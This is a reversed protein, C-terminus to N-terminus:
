RRRQVGLPKAVLTRDSRVLFHRATRSISAQLPNPDAIPIYGFMDAFSVPEDNLEPLALGAEDVLDRAYRASEAAWAHVAATDVVGGAGAVRANLHDEQSVLWDALIILGTVVTIVGAPMRERVIPLPPAGTVAALVRAMAERQEVWGGTGLGPYAAVPDAVVSPHSPEAYRGHHGGAILGGVVAAVRDRQGDLAWGLGNLLSPVLLQSSAEHRGLVAADVAGPTPFGVQVLAAVLDAPQGQWGPVAKGIDHLGAWFAVVRRAVDAEVGLARAILRRQARSLYTDWLLDAMVATDVLHCLLPYHSGAPLDKSKGWIRCEFADNSM